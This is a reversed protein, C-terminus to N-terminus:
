EFLSVGDPEIVLERHHLDVWTFIFIQDREIRFCTYQLNGRQFFCRVLIVEEYDYEGKFIRVLLCLEECDDNWTRRSEVRVLEISDNILDNIFGNVLANVLANILGNILGNIFGNIFGAILVLFVTFIFYFIM